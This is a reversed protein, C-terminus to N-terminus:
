ISKQWHLCSLYNETYNLISGYSLIGLYKNKLVAYKSTFFFAM